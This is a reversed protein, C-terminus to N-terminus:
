YLRITTLIVKTKISTSYMELITSRYEDDAIWVVSVVLPIEVDYTM